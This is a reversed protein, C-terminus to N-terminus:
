AIVGLSKLKEIQIATFGSKELIEVTHEGMSPAAHLPLDKGQLRIPSRIMKAIRGDPYKFEGLCARETLYTNNLAQAIDNVPSAPVSGGLIQMWNDTTKKMLEQDLMLTVQDRNKLRAPFDVFRPDTKWEPHGLADCLVAWFKEKNCM